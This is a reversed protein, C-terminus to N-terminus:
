CFYRYLIAGARACVEDPVESSTLLRTLDSLVRGAHKQAPTADELAPIRRTLIRRETTAWKRKYAVLGPQDLDSLGWDVSALGREAGYRLVAWDIAENPRLALHERLSAGFKYYLVGGWVLCIKAAIPEDGKFATVTVIADAPAFREWIAEFLALPQALLAYKDRRLRVHLRHMRRVADMSGDIEVRVSRRSAAAINRRAVNGLGAHIAEIPRDLATAHWTAAGVDEFGADTSAPAGDLLRMTLSCRRSAAAEQLQAALPRWIDPTAAIPDARDCFPLAVLRRGRIDDIDVWATGGLPQGCAARVVWGEPIFGYTACVADIWPPSVFLSGGPGGALDRWAPDTRPDVACVEAPRGVALELDHPVGAGALDPTQPLLSSMHM